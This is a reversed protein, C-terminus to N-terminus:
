ETDNRLTFRVKEIQAPDKAKKMIPYSRNKIKGTVFEPINYSFLLSAYYSTDKQPLVFPKGTKGEPDVYVLHPRTYLGDLRRSSFVVWRSNSSWSHYSDAEQSNVNTLDSTENTQLDIMFLDADRHWIPFTAYSSLTCMLWRGDPSIRPFSVSRNEEIAHILTDVKNGFTGNQPDFSISCLNYKLSDVEEPMKRAVASCFYLTQGDPSFTPFTEFAGKSAIVPTTLITKNEVDYVAVDSATDFVETRQTAHFDQTTNNISFAVYKGSPHWSPYVLSGITQETKTDLFVIQDGDIMVTGPFKARMHFLMKDPDQACFSHCNVCNYGTMKSEYVVSQRYSALERQYIGMKNWLAYGPEILRYAIYSDVPDTVVTMRFPEYASWNGNEEVGVVIEIDQGGNEALLTKWKKEPIVFHGDSAAVEFLYNKGKFLAVANKENVLSFNLPAINQPITVNAYDPYIEPQGSLSDSFTREGTCSLFSFMLFVYLYLKSRM